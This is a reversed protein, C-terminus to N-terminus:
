PRRRAAIVNLAWVSVIAVFKAERAVFGLDGLAVMMSKVDTWSWCLIVTLAVILPSTWRPLRGQTSALFSAVLGPIMWVLHHEYTIVPVLLLLASIAGVQCARALLDDAADRLAWATSAVLAISSFTTAMRATSGLHMHKGGEAPWALDFLNPLSHNGPLNLGVTLGNYHGSGFGPLVDTYFRVHYPVAIVTISLVSLVVIAVL